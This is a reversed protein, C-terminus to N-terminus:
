KRKLTKLSCPTCRFKEQVLDALKYREKAPPHDKFLISLSYNNCLNDLFNASKEDERISHMFFKKLSDPYYHASFADAIKEDAQVYAHHGIILAIGGICACGLFGMLNMNLPPFFLGLIAQACLPLPLYWAFNEFPLFLCRYYGTKRWFWLHGVEHMLVGHYHEPLLAIKRNKDIEQVGVYNATHTVAAFAKSNPDNDQFIIGTLSIKAIKCMKIILTIIKNKQQIYKPSSISRMSIKKKTNNESNKKHFYAYTASLTKNIYNIIKFFIGKNNIFNNVECALFPVMCVIISGSLLYPLVLRTFYSAALLWDSNFHYSLNILWQSSLFSANLMFWPNLIYLIVLTLLALFCARYKASIILSQLIDQNFKIKYLHHPQKLTKL